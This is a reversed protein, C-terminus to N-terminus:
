AREFRSPHGAARLPRPRTGDGWGPIVCPEGPAAHCYPCPVARIAARRDADATADQRSLGRAVGLAAALPHAGPVREGEIAALTERVAASHRREADAARHRAVAARIDAPMAFRPSERYHAKVANEADSYDIDGLVSHWALVDADGVTRRDFTAALTLIRAIETRNV